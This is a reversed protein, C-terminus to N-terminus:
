KNIKAKKKLKLSIQAKVANLIMESTENDIDKIDKIIGEDILDNLFEDIMKTKENDSTKNTRGNLYDLSVNFYDAIKTVVKNSGKRQGLEIMRITSDSVGLKKALQNQTLGSSQRLEKLIDGKM